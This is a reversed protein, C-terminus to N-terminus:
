LPGCDHVVLGSRALEVFSGADVAADPAQRLRRPLLKERVVMDTILARFLVRGVIFSSRHVIFARGVGLEDNM